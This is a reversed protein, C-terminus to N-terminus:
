GDKKHINIYFSPKQTITWAAIVPLTILLPLLYRFFGNIVSVQCIFFTLLGPLLPIIIGHNKKRLLFALCFIMLWVSTGLSYVLSTLPIRPLGSAFNILASRLAATRPLYFLDFVGQNVYEAQEIGFWGYIDRYPGLFPDYYRTNSCLFVNLYTLPYRIGLSIWVKMFRIVADRSAWPDFLGKLEDANDLCGPFMEPIQEYDFVEHLVALEAESLEAEHNMVVASTQRIPMTLAERTPGDPIDLAPRIVHDFVTIVCIPVLLVLLLKKWQRRPAPLTFLTLFVLGGVYKGEHRVLMMLSLAATMLILSGAHACFDDTDRVIRILLLTFLLIMAMYLSDKLLSYAYNPWIPILAFFALSIKRLWGPIKMKQFLPFCGAMVAANMLLQSGTFLFIGLNDSGLRRGLGMAWGMLMSSFAPHHDTFNGIGYFNNLQKLGDSPIFGPYFAIIYPLWCVLIILLPYLYCHKEFVAESIRGRLSCEKQEDMMAFGARVVVYFLPFYGIFKLMTIVVQPMTQFMVSLDKYATGCEGVLLYFSFLGATLLASLSFQKPKIKRLLTRYLLCFLPFLLICQPYMRKGLVPLFATLKELVSSEPMLAGIEAPNLLEYPLSFACATLFALLISMM